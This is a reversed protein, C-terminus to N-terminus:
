GNSRGAGSKLLSRAMELLSEDVHHVLIVQRLEPILPMLQGEIITENTMAAAPCGACQGLMRLRLIGDEYGVFEVNGGHEKLAPRVLEDLLQELAERTM